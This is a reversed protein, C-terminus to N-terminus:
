SYIKRLLPDTWAIEAPCKGDLRISATMQLFKFLPEPSSVSITLSDEPFVTLDGTFLDDPNDGSVSNVIGPTGGKCQGPLM